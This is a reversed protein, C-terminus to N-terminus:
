LSPISGLVTINHLLKRQVINGKEAACVLIPWAELSLNNQIM